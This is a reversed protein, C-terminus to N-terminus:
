LYNILNCDMGIRAMLILLSYNKTESFWYLLKLCFYVM